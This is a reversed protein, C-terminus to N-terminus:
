FGNIVLHIDGLTFHKSSLNLHVNAARATIALVLGLLPGEGATKAANALRGAGLNGDRFFLAPVLASVTFLQGLVTCTLRAHQSRVPFLPEM